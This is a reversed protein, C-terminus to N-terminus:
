EVVSTCEDIFKLISQNEFAAFIRDKDSLQKNINKWDVHTDEIIKVSIFKKSFFMRLVKLISLGIISAMSCHPITPQFFVSICQVNSGYKTEIETIEIGDIDVVHLSELSHPHEPDKINRILEYVMEITPNNEDFDKDYKPVTSEHVTPAENM